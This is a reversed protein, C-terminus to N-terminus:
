VPLRHPFIPLLNYWYLITGDSVLTIMEKTDNLVWGAAADITQAATTAITLVPLPITTSANKISYVRGLCTSADPLTVTAALTGTFILTNDTTSATTGATFARYNLSLSGRIDLTSNPSTTGIGIQANTLIACVSAMM